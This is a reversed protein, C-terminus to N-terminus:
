PLVEFIGKEEVPEVHILVESDTFEKHLAAELEDCLTHSQRVPWQGPVLLNFEVFRRAGAQRTRLSSSATGVPLLAQIVSEIQKLEAVPLQMDMLGDVSRHVLAFGTRVINIAVILAILADLWWAQPFILLLALALVVGVSTWVDTMLHKADAEVALSREAHAVRLLWWAAAANIATAALSLLLGIDLAQPAAPQLLGQVAKWAIMVAALLILMGEAGSAFYEAKEHGFPHKDDAPQAALGLLIFGIMAAALNVLSEVADSFLGVSGTLKWAGFKLAMTALAAAMSLLMARQVRSRITLLERM